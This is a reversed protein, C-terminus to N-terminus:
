CVRDGASDLANTEARWWGVLGAPATVQDFVALTCQQETYVAAADTARVTFGFSGAASPVGSIVGAPSLALGPPLAGATLAFSIPATGLAATVQQTYGIGLNARPLQPPSTFSPRDLM